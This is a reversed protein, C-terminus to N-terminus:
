NNVVNLREITLTLQDILASVNMQEIRITLDFIKSGPFANVKFHAQSLACVYAAAENQQSTLCLLLDFDRSVFDEILKKDPLRWFNLDSQYITDESEKGSRAEDSFYIYGLTANAALASGAINEKLGLDCVIGMSRINASSPFVVTRQNNRLAKAIRGQRIRDKFGNISM